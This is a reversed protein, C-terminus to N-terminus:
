KDYVVGDKGFFPVKKIYLRLAEFHIFVVACINIIPNSFFLKLFNLSTFPIKKGYITAYLVLDNKVFYKIDVKNAEDKLNFEFKYNGQIQNFPSVQM